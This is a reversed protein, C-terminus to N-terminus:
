RPSPQTDSLKKAMKEMLMKMKPNAMLRKVKDSQEIKNPDYSMVAQLLEPDSLLSKVEPDETLTKIDEMIQPDSLLKGQVQQVQQKLETPSESGTPPQIPTIDDQSISLIQADNIQVQGLQATKISYVGNQFNVVEGKLVTGDKLHITKLAPQALGPLPLLFVLISLILFKKM